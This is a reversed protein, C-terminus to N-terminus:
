RYVPEQATMSPFLGEFVQLFFRLPTMLLDKALYCNGYFTRRPNPNGYICGKRFNRSLFGRAPM